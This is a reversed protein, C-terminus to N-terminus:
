AGGGPEAREALWREFEAKLAKIKAIWGDIEAPEPISEAAAEEPPYRFVVVYRTFRHLRALGARGPHREPVLEILEAIDHTHRPRLDWAVLVAKVLKEAAQQVLFAARKLVPPEGHACHQAALLDDEVIALWERVIDANMSGPETGASKL